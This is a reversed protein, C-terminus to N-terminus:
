NNNNHTSARSVAWVVVCKVGYYYFACGIYNIEFRFMECSKEGWDALLLLNSHISKFKSQIM